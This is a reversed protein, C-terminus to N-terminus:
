EGIGANEDANCVVRFGISDDSFRWIPLHSDRAASGCQDRRSWSSGGRLVRKLGRSSGPIPDDMPSLKYFAPLYVDLCWEAVNGHMDYLGWDNPAYSGVAKPSSLQWAAQDYFRRFDNYPVDEAPPDGFHFRTTTGARCAYEWEAETPLRYVCGAGKEQPNASLKSCFEVAERWQVDQVPFRPTEPEADNAKRKRGASIATPNVKIIQEYEENTVEYVGMYFPKSIRVRHQPNDAKADAKPEGMLFEGAPILVFEMGISNTFTKAPTPAPSEVAWSHTIVDSNNGASDRARSEITLQGGKLNTLTVRGEPAPQWAGGATRFEFVLADKEPDHGSLTFALTEGAKPKEPLGEAFGVQPPLNKREPLDIPGRELPKPQDDNGDGLQGSMDSSMSSADTAGADSPRVSPSPASLTAVTPTLRDSKRTPSPMAPPPQPQATKASPSEALMTRETRQHSLGYLLGGGVMLLLAAASAVLSRWRRLRSEATPPEERSGSKGAPEVAAMARPLPVPRLPQPPEGDAVTEDASAVTQRMFQADYKAKRSADSLCALAGALEGLLRGAVAGRQGLRYKMVQGTRQATARRITEYNAEGQPLGLLTYHDPPRAGAAIGLWDHYPDFTDDISHDDKM